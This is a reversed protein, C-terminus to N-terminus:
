GVQHVQELTLKSYATFSGIPSMVFGDWKTSHAELVNRNDLVIYPRDTAIQAQMKWVLQKRQDQNVILGQKEYNQDYQKNCYGTDSWFGWQQCTLVSLIFDPDPLPYWDWLALDYKDYDNPYSYDPAAMVDFLATSDLAKQSVQIGIKDFAGQIIEFERDVGVV